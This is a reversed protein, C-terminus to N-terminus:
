QIGDTKRRVSTNINEVCSLDIYQVKLSLIIVWSDTELPWAVCFVCIAFSIDSVRIVEVRVRIKKTNAVCMQIICLRCIIGSDDRIFMCFTLFECPRLSCIFFFYGPFDAVCIIFFSIFM